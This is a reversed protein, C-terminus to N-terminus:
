YSIGHRLAYQILEATNQVGLLHMMVYKHTEVTRPSLSLDSAVEKMTRGRVVLRLVDRQRPTLRNLPSMGSAVAAIAERAIRPTLYVRGAMAERIATFLEDGACDKLLYGSAGARLAEGALAADEHMTLFIVRSRAGEMKLRKMADLGSMEPMGVDSVIVDPHVRRAAELMEAGNRVVGVLDHERELLRALSEAVITHDDALLIRARNPQM